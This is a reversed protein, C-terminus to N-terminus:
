DIRVSENIRNHKKGHQQIYLYDSEINRRFFLVQHFNELYYFFLFYLFITYIKIKDNTPFLSNMCRKPIHM